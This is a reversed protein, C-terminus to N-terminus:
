RRVVALRHTRLPPVRALAPYLTPTFRGLRRALPPLVTLRHSKPEVGLVARLERRGVMRTARNLPNPVRPEYCLLAGGPSLVRLAEELAAGVSVRDALSSLLTIMFVASFSGEGHPLRRADAVDFHAGPLAVTAEGIREGLLDVGWLLGEPVGRSALARLLWGGGCGVDLVPGRRIQAGSVEWILGLLEDRIAANGPNARDWARRKRESRRYRRWTSELRDAEGGAQESSRIRNM